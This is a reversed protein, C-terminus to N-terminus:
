QQLKLWLNVRSRTGLSIVRSVEGDKNCSFKKTAEM